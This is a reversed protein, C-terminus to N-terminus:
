PHHCRLQVGRAHCQVGPVPAPEYMIGLGGIGSGYERGVAAADDAFQLFDSTALM